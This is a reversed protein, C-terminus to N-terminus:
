GILSYIFLKLTDKKDAWITITKKGELFFSMIVLLLGSVLLRVGVFWTVPLQKNEFLWQSVTGGVGWFISGIIVLVFGPWRKQNRHTM